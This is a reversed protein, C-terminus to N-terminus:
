EGEEKKNFWPHLKYYLPAIDVTPELFTEIYEKSQTALCGAKFPQQFYKSEIIKEKIEEIKEEKINGFSIQIYPCPCFDGYTTIYIRRVLQNCIGTYGYFYKENKKVYPLKLYEKIQKLEENNLLESKKNSYRGVPTVNNIYLRVEERRVINLLFEMSGDSLLEHTAVTTVMTNLGIKKANRITNLSKEFSGKVKTFEDHKKGYLSVFIYQMGVEKLETLRKYNM